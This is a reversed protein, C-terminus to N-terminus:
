FSAALKSTCCLERTSMELQFHQVAKCIASKLVLADTTELNNSACASTFEGSLLPHGGSINAACSPCPSIDLNSICCFACLLMVSLIPRVARCIAAKYLWEATVLHRNSVCASTFTTSLYLIVGSISATRFPCASMVRQNICCAACTVMELLIAPFCQM